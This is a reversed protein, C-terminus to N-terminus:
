RKIKRKLIKEVDNVKGKLRGKAGKRDDCTIVLYVRNHEKKMALHCKKILRFIEDWSGEIITNMATTQYPLKSKDIIDIIKAVPKSLEEKSGVPFISFQVLM